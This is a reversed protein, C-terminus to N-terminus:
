NALMGFLVLIVGSLQSPTRQFVHLLEDNLIYKGFLVLFFVEYSYSYGCIWWMWM